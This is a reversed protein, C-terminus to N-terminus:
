VGRHKELVAGTREETAASIISPKMQKGRSIQEPLVPSPKERCEWHRACAKYVTSLLPFHTCIPGATSKQKEMRPM